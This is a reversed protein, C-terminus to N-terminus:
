SIEYKLKIEKCVQSIINKNFYVEQETVYRDILPHNIRKVVPLIVGTGEYDETPENKWISIDYWYGKPYGFPSTTYKGHVVFIFSNETSEGNILEKYMYSEQYQNRVIAGRGILRLSEKLGEESCEEKPLEQSYKRFLNSITYDVGELLFEKFKIIKM